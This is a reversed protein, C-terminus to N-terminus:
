LEGMSINRYVLFAESMNKVMQSPVKFDCFGKKEPNSVTSRNKLREEFEPPLLKMLEGFFSNLDATDIVLGDVISYDGDILSSWYPQNALMRKYLEPLTTLSMYFNPDEYYNCRRCIDLIKETRLDRNKNCIQHVASIVHAVPERYTVLVIMKQRAGSSTKTENQAKRAFVDQCEELIIDRFWNTWVQYSAFPATCYYNPNKRFRKLMRGTCCSSKRKMGLMTFMQSEMFSGGTKGRHLYQISCGPDKLCDAFVQVFPEKDLHFFTFGNAKRRPVNLAEESSLDENRLPHKFGRRNLLDVFLLTAALGAVLAVVTFRGCLCARLMGPPLFRIPTRM